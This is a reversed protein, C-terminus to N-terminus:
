ADGLAPLPRAFAEITALGDAVIVLPVAGAAHTAEVAAGIEAGLVASAVAALQPIPASRGWQRAPQGEGMLTAPHLRTPSAEHLALAFRRGDPDALNVWCAGFPAGHASAADEILTSLASRIRVYTGRHLGAIM